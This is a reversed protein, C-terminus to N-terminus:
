RAAAQGLVQRVKGLLAPATFPKELFAIGPQPTFEALAADDVYGSMLLVAIAPRQRRLQTMLERGSLRPMVLDSVLLHIPEPYTHALSIGDMGDSATLVRYGLDELYAGIMKRVGNEDEALLITESGRPLAAAPLPPPLAAPAPAVRPLHIWFTCGDGPKSDLRIHGGSQKVIGYAMSLGLGTGQGLKKTTFFPEFARAQVERDMGHGTDRVVIQVYDGPQLDEPQRVPHPDVCLNRTEITLRGGRPMADQANVALNILVQEIQYPDAKVCGLDRQPLFILEVDEKILRKLLDLLHGIVHNL